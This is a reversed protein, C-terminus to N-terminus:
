FIPLSPPPSPAPACKPSLLHCSSRGEPLSQEARTLSSIASGPPILASFPLKTQPPMGPQSIFTCSHPAKFGLLSGRALWLNTSHGEVPQQPPELFVIDYIIRTHPTYFLWPIPLGPSPGGRRVLSQALTNSTDMEEVPPLGSVSDTIGEVKQQRTCFWQLRPLGEAGSSDSVLLRKGSHARERARGDRKEDSLGTEARM